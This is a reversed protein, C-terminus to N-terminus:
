MVRPLVVKAILFNQLVAPLTFSAVYGKLFITRMVFHSMKRSDGYLLCKFKQEMKKPFSALPLRFKSM